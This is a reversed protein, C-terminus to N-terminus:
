MEPPKIIPNWILWGNGIMLQTIFILTYVATLRWVIFWRQSSAKDAVRVYWDTVFLIYSLPFYHTDSDSIWNENVM